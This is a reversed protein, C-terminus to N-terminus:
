RSGCLIGCSALAQSEVIIWNNQAGEWRLLHEAHAALSKLMDLRTRTTLEPAGLTGFFIDLWSWNVRNRVSTSPWM